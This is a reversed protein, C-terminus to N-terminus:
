FRRAKEGKAEEKREDKEKWLCASIVITVTVADAAAGLSAGRPRAVTCSRVAATLVIAEVDVIEREEKRAGILAERGERRGASATLATRSTSSEDKSFSTSWTRQFFSFL